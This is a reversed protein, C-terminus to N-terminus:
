EFWINLTQGPQGAMLQLVKIKGVASDDGSVEQPIGDNIRQWHRDRSDPTVSYHIKTGLSVRPFVYRPTPRGQILAVCVRDVPGAPHLEVVPVKDRWSPGRSRFGQNKKSSSSGLGLSLAVVIVAVLAVGITALKKDVKM